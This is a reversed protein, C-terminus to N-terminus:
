KQWYLFNYEIDNSNSICKTADKNDNNKNPVDNNKDNDYKKDNDNDDSDDCNENDDSDDFIIIIKVIM